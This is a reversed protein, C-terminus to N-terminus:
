SKAVGHVIAWCAGKDLFISAPDWLSIQMGMNIAASNVISLLHFSLITLTTFQINHRKVVTLFYYNLPGALFFKKVLKVWKLTCNLTCTCMHLLGKLIYFAMGPTCAKHIFCATVLNSGYSMTQQGEMCSWYVYSGSKTFHLPKLAPCLLIM